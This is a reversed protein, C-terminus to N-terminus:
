AGSARQGAVKRLAAQRARIETSSIALLPSTLMAWAPAQRMTLRSAQSEPLRCAAFASAAPAALAKLRWGPRDVVAIPMAAFIERWHRWRHMGALCDAGMIWVFRVGPYRLKLHQLTGVTFSAALNKEFDTVVIRRDAAVTRALAMREALPLLDSRSKLPNGPTLLWWVCDLGLRKLAVQSAIRHGEHPPNFSGGVLGVRQGPLALPPRAAITGFRHPASKHM